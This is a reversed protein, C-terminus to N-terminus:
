FVLSLTYTGPRLKLCIVAQRGRLNTKRMQLIPSMQRMHHQATFAANNWPPHQVSINNGQTYLVNNGPQGAVTLTSETWNPHLTGLVPPTLPRKRAGRLVLTSNRRVTTNSLTTHFGFPFLLLLCSSLPARKSEVGQKIALTPSVVMVGKFYLETHVGEGM